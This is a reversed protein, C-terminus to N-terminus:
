RHGEQTELEICYYICGEIRMPDNPRCKNARAIEDVTIFGFGNIKCLTFPKNKVIDLAEDGFQEYIKQIKKPTVKFPTLYAALDRMAHGGHYSELIIDLKKQTIGKISLLSDPYHDLVDFTRTGYQAVILKATKPGIGKIMGSALYSEIGEVTQPLIEEYNEVQLQLGYSNKVWKGQLEIEFKDTGPLNNGVATFEIGEGKYYKNRAPAPVSVDETHYVFICYGNEKNQFIPKV